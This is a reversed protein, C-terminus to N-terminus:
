LTSDHIGYHRAARSADLNVEPQHLMCPCKSSVPGEVISSSKHESAESDSKETTASDSNETTESDAAAHSTRETADVDPPLDTLDTVDVAGASKASVAVAKVTPNGTGREAM